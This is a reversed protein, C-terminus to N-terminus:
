QVAITSLKTLENSNDYSYQIIGDDGMM